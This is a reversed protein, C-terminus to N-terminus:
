RYTTRTTPVFFVNTPPGFFTEPKTIRGVIGRRSLCHTDYGLDWMLDMYGYETDTSMPEGSKPLDSLILPKFKKISKMGGRIVAPEAGEIDLKIFDLREIRHKAVFDDLTMQKVEAVQYQGFRYQMYFTLAFDPPHLNFSLGTSGLGTNDALPTPVAMNVKGTRDGIALEHCHVPLGNHEVHQVLRKFESPAPEFSHVTGAQGVLSAMHLSIEGFNAGVDLCVMNPRLVRELAYHLDPDYCGFALVCRDIHRHPSIWLEHGWANRHWRYEPKRWGSRGLKDYMRRPRIGGVPKGIFSMAHFAMRALVPNM